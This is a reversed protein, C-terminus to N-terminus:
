GAAERDPAAHGSGGDLFDDDLTIGAALIEEESAPAVFPDATRRTQRVTALSQPMSRLHDCEGGTPMAALETTRRVIVEDGVPPPLEPDLELHGLGLHGFIRATVPDDVAFHLRRGAAGLRRAARLFAELDASGPVPLGRLDCLLIRPVGDGAAVCSEDVAAFLEPGGEAPRPRVALVDAAVSLRPLRAFPRTDVLDAM